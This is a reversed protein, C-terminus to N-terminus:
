WIFLNCVLVLDVHGSIVWPYVLGWVYMWNHIADQSLSNTIKKTIEIYTDLVHCFLKWPIFIPTFKMLAMKIFVRIM